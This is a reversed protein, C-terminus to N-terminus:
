LLRNAAEVARECWWALDDRASVGSALMIGAEADLGKRWGRLLLGVLIAADVGADDFAAVRLGRYREILDDPSLPLSAVNSVLFWGLEIA